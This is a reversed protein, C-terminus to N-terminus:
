AVNEVVTFGYKEAMKKLRFIQAQKNRGDLYDSGLEQYRKGEKIIVYIAKLLKHAIAVIARKAGRRAKLRYYKDRYYSGKTKIAAWAVEVLLTKLPHKHVPSRGSHRKGGSENNGPCVGAWSCLAASNPFADLCPSLRALIGAAAIQSIGPLEQLRDLVDQHPSMVEMIRSEIHNVSHRCSDVVELYESLMFRHHDTVFGQIALFLEEGKKNLRGRLCKRVDERTIEETPVSLILNMLNRGSVGFLDSVVSDIKINATEFLKQIRRRFDSEASVLHNRMTVLERWRRVEPDPIFSGRLLGHRLLEAIWQSDAVDTKRGPVNKYHRANILVVQMYGELINHVPRWYVGTSEMAVVPCAHELLWEKLLLLENTFTGFQKIEMVAEDQSQDILCAVIIRKHIDLGCCVPHVISVSETYKKQTM